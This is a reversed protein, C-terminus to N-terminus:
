PGIIYVRDKQLGFKADPRRAPVIEPLGRRRNWGRHFYTPAGAGAPLQRAMGFPAGYGTACVRSLSRFGRDSGCRSAIKEARRSRSWVNARNQSEDSSCFREPPRKLVRRTSKLPISGRVEQM